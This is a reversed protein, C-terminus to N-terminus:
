TNGYRPSIRLLIAFRDYNVNTHTLCRYVPDQDRVFIREITEPYCTSLLWSIEQAFFRLNWGQKLGLSSADVVATCSTIPILPSPRDRMMSCLPLIFRILTDQFVSALQWMDPKPAQAEGPPSYVWSTAKRRNGWCALTDKDLHAVDFM